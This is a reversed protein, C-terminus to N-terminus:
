WTPDFTNHNKKYIFFSFTALAYLAGSLLHFASAGESPSHPMEWHDNTAKL